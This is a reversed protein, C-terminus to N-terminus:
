FENAQKSVKRNYHILSLVKMLGCLVTFPLLKSELDATPLSVSNIRAINYICAMNPHELTSTSGRFMLDACNNKCQISKVISKALCLWECFM